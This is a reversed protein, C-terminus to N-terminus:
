RVVAFRVLIQLQPVQPHTTDLVLKAYGAQNSGLHNVARSGAPVTVSLPFKALADPKVIQPEGIEAQLTSTTGAAVTFKVQEPADGRVFLFLKRELGQSSQVEGLQLVGHESRWGPGVLSIQSAVRGRIPLSVAGNVPRQTTIELSQEFPGIPLGAALKVTLTLGSQADAAAVTEPDLPQYAVTFFQATEATPFTLQDIEIQDTLLSYLRVSASTEQGSDIRSFTLEPPDLRFPSLVQGVVALEIRPRRRDNTLITATQRAPGASDEPTWQVVIETSEGPLIETDSLNSVTCACSKGGERLRLPFQGQNTFRFARSQVVGPQVDGFDYTVADVVVQPQPGDAPALMPGAPGPPAQWDWGLRAATTGVGLAIGLVVSGITLLLM